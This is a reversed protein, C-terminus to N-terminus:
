KAKLASVADWIDLPVMFKVKNYIQDLIRKDKESAPFYPTEIRMPKRDLRPDQALTILVNQLSGGIPTKDRPLTEIERTLIKNKFILKNLASLDKSNVNFSFASDTRTSDSSYGGHYYLNGSGSASIFVDYSYYYPPPISGTQYHYQIDTWDFQAFIGSGSLFFIIAALISLRKM